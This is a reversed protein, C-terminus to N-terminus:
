LTLFIIDHRFDDGMLADQEPRLFHGLAGMVGECCFFECHEKFQVLASTGTVSEATGAIRDARDAYPMSNSLQIKAGGSAARRM